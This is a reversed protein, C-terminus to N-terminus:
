VLTPACEAEIDVGDFGPAGPVPLVVPVRLREVVHNITRALVIDTDDLGDIQAATAADGRARYREAMFKPAHTDEDDFFIDLAIVAAGNEALALILDAVLDRPWPWRQRDRMTDEDIAIVVAPADAPAGRDRPMWRQLQDWWGDRWSLDERDGFVALAAVLALLLGMGTLRAPHSFPHVLRRLLSM